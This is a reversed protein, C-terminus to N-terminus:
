LTQHHKQAEAPASPSCRAASGVTRSPTPTRLIGGCMKARKESGEATKVLATCVWEPRQGWVLANLVINADM